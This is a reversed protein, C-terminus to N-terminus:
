PLNSVHTEHYLTITENNRTLTLTMAVIGWRQHIINQNYTFATKNCDVDSVLIASSEEGADPPARWRRVVAGNECAYTVQAAVIHFRNGPSTFPFTKAGDLQINTATSGAGVSARNSNAGSEYADAGSIGLNYVVVWEGAQPTALAGGLTLDGLVDFSETAEEGPRLPNGAGTATTEARYRGGTRTLLFSASLNDASVTVSNPLALRLDRSIRRLATDAADTLAARSELDFYAQVPARIFVAVMGAIIGTIVIVMIMEIM